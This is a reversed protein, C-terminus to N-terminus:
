VWDLIASAGVAARFGFVAARSGVAVVAALSLAPIEDIWYIPFGRQGVTLRVQRSAVAAKRASWVFASLIPLESSQWGETSAPPQLSVWSFRAPISFTCPETSCSTGRYLPRFRLLHHSDWPLSQHHYGSRCPGMTRFPRSHRCSWWGPWEILEVVASEAITSTAAVVLAEAALTGAAFPWSSDM